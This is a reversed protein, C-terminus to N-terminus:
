RDRIVLVKLPRGHVVLDLGVKKLADGVSELRMMNASIEFDMPYDIGTEDIVVTKQFYTRLCVLLQASTTGRFVYGSADGKRYSSDSASRQSLVKKRDTVILSLVPMNRTEIAAAYPFWHALDKQIAAMASLPGKEEGSLKLLYSYQGQPTNARFAFLSTDALELVPRPWVTGSFTESPGWTARGLYALQYLRALYIPSTSFTGNKLGSFLSTRLVAQRDFRAPALTSLHASSFSSDSFTKVPQVVNKGVTDAQKGSFLRILLQEDLFNGITRYLIRGQPSVVFAVPTARVGFAKFALTDFATDFGLNGDKQFRSYFTQIGEDYRPHNGGILLFRATGGFKRRLAELKPFGKICVTCHKGWFELVLWKGRYAALTKNAATGKGKPYVQLQLQPVSDGIKKAGQLQYDQAILTKSALILLIIILQKKM